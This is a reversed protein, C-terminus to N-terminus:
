EAELQELVAEAASYMSRAGREGLLERAREQAGQWLPLAKEILKRGKSEITLSQSRGSQGQDPSVSLWGHDEMLRVNRSLTSKDMNLRKAVEGPSVPGRRAVIVLFTLQAATMGLPRLAENYLGGITRNLLLVRQALCENAILDLTQRDSGAARAKRQSKRRM